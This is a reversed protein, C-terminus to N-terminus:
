LFFVCGSVFALCFLFITLINKKHCLSILSFLLATLVLIAGDALRSWSLLVPNFALVFTLALTKSGSLRKQMTLPIFLLLSGCFASFFRALFASAGFFRFLLATSGVYLPQSVSFNAIGKSWDLSQLALETEAESLPTSGLHAFRLSVGAIIMLALIWRFTRTKYEVFRM